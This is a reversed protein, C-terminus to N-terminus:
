RGRQVLPDPREKFVQQVRLEPPVWQVPPELLEQLAPQAQSAKFARFAKRDLQM